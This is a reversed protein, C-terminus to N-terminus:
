RNVRTKSTECPNSKCNCNARARHIIPWGLGTPSLLLSVPARARARAIGNVMRREDILITNLTYKRLTPGSRHVIFRRHIVFDRALLSVRADRGALGRARARAARLPDLFPTPGRTPHDIPSIIIDGEDRRRRGATISPPAAASCRGIFCWRLRFIKVRPNIPRYVACHNGNINM